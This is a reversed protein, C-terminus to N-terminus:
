SFCRVRENYHIISKITRESFKSLNYTTLVDIIGFFYLEKKDYSLIGNYYSRFISPDSPNLSCEELIRLEGEKLYHIGVLLSYDCINREEM